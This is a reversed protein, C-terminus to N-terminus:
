VFLPILVSAEELKVLRQKSRRSPAAKIDYALVMMVGKMLMNLARQTHTSSAHSYHFCTIYM